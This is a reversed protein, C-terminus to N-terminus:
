FKLSAVYLKIKKLFEFVGIKYLVRKCIIKKDIEIPIEGYVRINQFFNVREEYNVKVSKDWFNKNTSEKQEFFHTQSLMEKLYNGKHSAVILSNIGDGKAKKLMNYDHSIYDGIFIDAPCNSGKYFCNYCTHRLSLNKGFALMYVDDTYTIQQIVNHNSFKYKSFSTLWGYKGKYRCDVDSLVANEKGEISKKHVRWVLPSPVGHCFIAVCFLNDYEKRLFKKLGAVECPTGSFLVKKDENLIEKIEKYVFGINSQVYKSHSMKKVIEPNRSVVHEAEMRDNWVCGCVYGGKNLFMKALTTFIGSTTYENKFSIDKRYAVYSFTKLSVNEKCARAICVKECLGCEVCKDKNIQPVLFGEDNESITIASHPCINYCALCGYCEKEIDINIM